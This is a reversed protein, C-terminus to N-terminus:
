CIRRRASAVDPAANAETVQAPPRHAHHRAVPPGASIRAQLRRLRPGPRSDPVHRGPVSRMTFRGTSDTEVLLLDRGQATVAAGPVPRSREDTVSGEIWGASLSATQIVPTNSVPRVPVRENARENVRENARDNM